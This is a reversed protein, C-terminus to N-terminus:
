LRAASTRKFTSNERLTQGAFPGGLLATYRRCRDSLQTVGLVHGGPPQGRRACCPPPYADLHLDKCIQDRYLTSLHVKKLESEVADLDVKGKSFSGIFPQADALLMKIIDAPGRQPDDRIEAVLYDDIGKAQGEDWSTLQFVEAGAVSLLFFLRISAHRVDPKSAVDADFATYVKRGRLGLNVLEARLVLKGQPTAEQACWVGNLGAAAFGAQALVLARVPGETIILPLKTKGISGYATKTIFPPGTGGAAAVFKPSGNLTPLPRAIWSLTAGALNRVRFWVIEQALNWLPVCGKGLREVIIDRQPAADIEVGNGFATELQLGRQLLYDSALNVARSAPQGLRASDLNFVRNSGVRRCVGIGFLAPGQDTELRVSRRSRAPLSEIHVHFRSARKKITFFPKETQMAIINRHHTYSRLLTNRRAANRSRQAPFSSINHDSLAAALEVNAACKGYFDARMTLIVFTQGQTVKAAYLLNRIFAERLEDKDCLTFVEEFQDVLIVLRPEPANESLSQRGILHLTKENKQFAEVLEALAPASQAVNLVRALTM